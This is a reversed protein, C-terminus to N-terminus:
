STRTSGGEKRAMRKRWQADSILRSTGKLRWAWWPRCGGRQDRCSKGLGGGEGGVGGRNVSIGVSWSYGGRGGSHELSHVDFRM